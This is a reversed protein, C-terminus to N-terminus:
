IWMIMSGCASQTLTCCQTDQRGQLAANNVSIFASSHPAFEQFTSAVSSSHQLPHSMRYKTFLSASTYLWLQTFCRQTHKKRGAQPPTRAKSRQVVQIRSCNAALRLPSELLFIFVVGMWNTIWPGPHIICVCLLLVSYYDILNTQGRSVIVGSLVSHGSRWPSCM